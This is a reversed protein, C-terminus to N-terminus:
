KDDERYKLVSQYYTVLGMDSSLDIGKRLHEYGTCWTWHSQSDLAPCHLCTWQQRSYKPDSPFNLAVSRYMKARLAFFHRTQIVNMEQIYQKLEYKEQSLVSYDLKQYSKIQTLLDDKNKENISRKILTKWQISSFTSM